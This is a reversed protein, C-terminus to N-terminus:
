RYPYFQFQTWIMNNDSGIWRGQLAIAAAALRAVDNPVDLTSDETNSVHSINIPCQYFTSNEGKGESKHAWMWICRDGCSFTVANQPVNIGRYIYTTAGEGGNQLPIIINDHVSGNFITFNLADNVGSADNVIERKEELYTYCQHASATITRNTFRPYTRQHDEPNYEMFRYACEGPTKRCFYGYNDKSDYVDQIQDYFGRTSISPAEGHSHALGQPVDPNVPCNNQYNFYCTLNTANVM